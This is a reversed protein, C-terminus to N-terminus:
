RGRHGHLNPVGSSAFVKLQAYGAQDLMRCTAAAEAEQLKRATSRGLAAEGWRV